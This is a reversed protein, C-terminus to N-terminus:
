ICVDVSCSDIEILDLESDSEARCSDSELPLRPSCRLHSPVLQRTTFRCGPVLAAKRAPSIWNEVVALARERASTMKVLTDSRRSAELVEISFYAQSRSSLDLPRPDTTLMSGVLSIHRDSSVKRHFCEGSRYLIRRPAEGTRTHSERTRETLTM